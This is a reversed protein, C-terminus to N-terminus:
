IGETRTGVRRRGALTTVRANDTGQLHWHDMCYDVNPAVNRRCRYCCPKDCTGPREVRFLHLNTPWIAFGTQVHTEVVYGKLQIEANEPVFLLSEIAMRWRGNQHTVVDGVVLQDIAFRALKVM